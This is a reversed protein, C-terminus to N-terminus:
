RPTEVTSGGPEGTSPTTKQGVFSRFVHRWPIVLLLLLGVSTEIASARHAADLNGALWLPLAFAFLWIVKWLLEFLLLPIMQLPYRIGVAALLGVAGLLAWAVGTMHPTSAPHALISPWVLLALGVAMFAYFARLLWLRIPSVETM